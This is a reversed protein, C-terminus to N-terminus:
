KLRSVLLKVDNAKFESIYVQLKYSALDELFYLPVKKHQVFLVEDPKLNATHALITEMPQPMPLERVDISFLKEPDLKELREIFDVDNIFAPNEASKQIEPEKLQQAKLFYCYFLEDEVKKIYSKAGMKELRSILPFPNFDNIICLIAGEALNKYATIIDKLPDNGAKIMPRVDMDQIAHGSLWDPEPLPSEEKVDGEADEWIFGLPELVEKFRSLQCHGIKSAEMISVRTALLKRLIPNKLNQFPKAISAIADISQVNHQILKAIKTHQNIKMINM